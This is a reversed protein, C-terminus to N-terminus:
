RGPFAWKAWNAHRVSNRELVLVLAKKEDRGIPSQLGACHVPIPRFEEGSPGSSLLRFLCNHVAAPARPRAPRSRGKRSAGVLKLARSNVARYLGSDEARSDGERHVEGDIRGGDRGGDCHADARESRGELQGEAEPGDCGGLRRRGRRIGKRDLIDDHQDLLVQGKVVEGTPQGVIGGDIVQYMAVEAIRDVNRIGVRGDHTGLGDRLVNGGIVRVVTDSTPVHLDVTTVVRRAAIRRFHTTEHRLLHAGVRRRVLRACALDDVVVGRVVDGDEIGHRFVKHEKVPPEGRHRTGSVGVARIQSRAGRVAVALVVVVKQSGRKGLGGDKLLQRLVVDAPHIVGVGGAEQGIGEEVFPGGLGALAVAIHFGKVLKELVGLRAREGLEGPYVGFAARVLGEVGRRGDVHALAEDLADVLGHAVTGLPVLRQEDEGEVLVTTERVVDRRRLINRSTVVKGVGAGSAIALREGKGKVTQTDPHGGDEDGGPHALTQHLVARRVLGIVKRM